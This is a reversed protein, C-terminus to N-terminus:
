HHSSTAFIRSGVDKGREGEEGEEWGEEERAKWTFKKDGKEEKRGEKGRKKRKPRCAGSPMPSTRSASYSPKLNVSLRGHEIEKKERNEGREKRLSLKKKKRKERGHGENPLDSQGGRLLVSYSPTM